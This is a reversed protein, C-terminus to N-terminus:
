ICVFKGQKKKQKNKFSQRHVESFNGTRTGLILLYCVSTHLSPEGMLLMHQQFMWTQNQAGVNPGTAGAGPSWVGRIDSLLHM